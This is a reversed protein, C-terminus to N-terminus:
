HEVIGLYYEWQQRLNEMLNIFGPEQRINTLNADHDFLPYCPFGDEAAAQLWRIAQEPKNMIAYSCAINYATHHFHGFGTGRDIALRIKEEASENNGFSAAILAQLSAFLGGSDEPYDKLLHELIDSAEKKRDLNFLTWATHYGVLAPNVELPITRFVSLAEEYKGQYVFTQAMRYVALNNTPDIAVARQSELLAEDFLGIHSYILALQNRAEDQNPDLALARRYEHIAKEHPFNNASTWLLRGRALYAVAMDPDLSLAKQAAIFTKEEWEKEEPSFLFYKWVYVQALEAYASAFVPDIEIARELNMIASQNDDRNQRKAYFRGRLYYDYAEPDIRRTRTLLTEEEPTLKINIEHAISRAVDSQLMLVDSIDRDYVQAWLNREVPRLQVLQVRIRVNDGVKLASGEVVADVDLERSIESLSKDGEKYRVVSTRSIVRLASIHSLEGIIADHMGEVFYEQEIEGSLNVMPLVALSRIDGAQPTQIVVLITIVIAIILLVGVGIALRNSRKTKQTLHEKPKATGIEKGITKLDVLLEDVRQYRDKPDKRLSKNVIRELEMPVGSRLGTVPEPDENIISYVLATDYESNFPRLGTIMEYMVVGLSWIDTRHDVKNGQAQEPSMYPVTGLTTGSKTLLTREAAKALGFDIIKVQDDNTIFINAPKLDRHVVSNKHAKQLGSAIQIAYSVVDKLTLPGEEIKQKLSIGEYYAMVIFIQGDDTEEISHITCINSHDLTSAAQAEYLFRKREAEDIGMHSPLFKLAVTRNLKTDHAKYVVGMGGEGLKELIEYHSITKGIM